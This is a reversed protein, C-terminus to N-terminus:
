RHGTTQIVMPAGRSSKAALKRWGERDEAERLTNRLQLGTWESINDGWNKRPRGRRRGGQVTGQLITKALESSRTVHGYWKMKRRKVVTLLDEHPGIAKRIRNKVEQNIIHDHHSVNLVKRYCRMEMAQIKREIEATLTWSECAYLFISIVLSHMLRIKSSLLINKDKWIPALKTMAAAKQAIRSLVEPKSGQNSVIAGLYKFSTVTELKEGSVKIDKSIKNSSKMMLKTKEASIKMGFAASTTDLCEVLSALEEESGALGDIDDAFRLNTITKGGISVSGKHDELAETMIRELFINFLTPSLLCGQRVGVTTRFWDGISHNLYVASSAKNYLEEIVEILSGNINYLKMTAWLAAHWVWDFAKKFDVFVHYLDQQHKQYKECLLRLNFIQETTSRGARFGAKEEAIIDEVQPKLRNLLIKLM